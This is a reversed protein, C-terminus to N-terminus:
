YVPMGNLWDLLRELEDYVTPLNPAYFGANRIAIRLAHLWDDQNYSVGHSRMPVGRSDVLCLNVVTHEATMYGYILVRDSLNERWAFQIKKRFNDDFYGDVVKWQFGAVAKEGILYPMSQKRNVLSTMGRAFSMQEFHWANPVPRTPTYYKHKPLRAFKDPDLDLLDSRYYRGDPLPLLAGRSLVNTLREGHYERCFIDATLHDIVGGESLELRLQYRQVSPLDLSDIEGDALLKKLVYVSLGTQRAIHSINTDRKAM